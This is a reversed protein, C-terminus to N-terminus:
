WEAVSVAFLFIVAVVAFPTQILLTRRARPVSSVALLALFSSGIVGFAAIRLVHTVFPSCFPSALAAVLSFSFFVISAAHALAPPGETDKPRRALSDLSGKLPLVFRWSKRSLKTLCAVALGGSGKIRPVREFGFNLTGISYTRPGNRHMPPISAVTSAILRITLSSTKRFSFDLPVSALSGSFPSPWSCRWALSSLM